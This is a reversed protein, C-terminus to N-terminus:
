TKWSGTMYCLPLLDLTVLRDKYEQQGM